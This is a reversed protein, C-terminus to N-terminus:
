GRFGSPPFPDAVNEAYWDPDSKTKGLKVQQKITGIAEQESDAEVEYQAEVQVHWKAM